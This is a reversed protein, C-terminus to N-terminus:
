IESEVYQCYQSATKNIQPYLSSPLDHINIFSYPPPTSTKYYQYSCYPYDEMKMAMPMYTSIPNRHIYRSVKLLNQPTLVPSSNFRQQFVHGIHHYKRNYYDTYRKNFICMVKSISASESKLLFHYHNTLICFVSISIPYEIHIMDLLRFVETMDIEDHFINQRNNGRSYIHHYVHPIWVRRKRGM